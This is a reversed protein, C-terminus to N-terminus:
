AAEFAELKAGSLALGALDPVLSDEEYMKTLVRERIDLCTRSGAPFERCVLPQLDPDDHVSCISKGDPTEELFGCDSGLGYLGQGLLLGKAGRRVFKRDDESHGRFYRRNSWEAGEGAPLFEVLVTGAARLNEVERSNLGMTLKASGRCCAGVCNGCMGSPDRESM